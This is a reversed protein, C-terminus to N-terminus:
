LLSYQLSHPVAQSALRICLPHKLITMAVTALSHVQPRPLFWTGGNINEKSAIRYLFLVVTCNSNCHEIKGLSNTLKCHLSSLLAGEAELISLFTTFHSKDLEVQTRVANVLHCAKEENNQIGLISDLTHQTIMDNAVLNRGINAVSVVTTFVDQIALSDDDLALLEPSKQNAMSAACHTIQLKFVCSYYMAPLAFALKVM